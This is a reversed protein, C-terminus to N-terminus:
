YGSHQGRKAARVSRGYNLVLHLRDEDGMSERLAGLPESGWKKTTRANRIMGGVDDAILASRVARGTIVAHPLAQSFTLGFPTSGHTARMRRDDRHVVVQDLRGVQELTAHRRPERLSHDAPVTPEAQCGGAGFVGVVQGAEQGPDLAHVEVGQPGAEVEAPGAESVPQTAEVAAQADVRAEEDPM